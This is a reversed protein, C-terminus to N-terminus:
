LQIIYRHFFRHACNDPLRPAMKNRLTELSSISKVEEKLMRRLGVFYDKPISPGERVRFEM